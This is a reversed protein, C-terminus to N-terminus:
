ASLGVSTAGGHVSSADDPSSTEAPAAPATTGAVSTPWPMNLKENRDALIEARAIAVAKGLTMHRAPRADPAGGLSSAGAAAGSTADAGLPESVAEAEQAEQAMVDMKQDFLAVGLAGSFKMRPLQPQVAASSGAACSPVLWTSMHPNDVNIVEEVPVGQSVAKGKSVAKREDIVEEVPVSQAVAEREDIVEEVPVSKAVAELEDIVEEVPVSKVVAKGKSSLNFAGQPLADVDIVNEETAPDTPTRPVCAGSSAMTPVNKFAVLFLPIPGLLVTYPSLTLAVPSRLLLAAPLTRFLGLPPPTPHDLRSVVVIM